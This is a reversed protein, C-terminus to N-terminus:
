KGFNAIINNFDMLTYPNGFKSILLNFDALDVKGDGNLDGSIIVKQHTIIADQWCGPKYNVVRIHYTTNPLLNTPLPFSSTNFPLADSKTHCGTGEGVGNPCGDKVAALDTGIRVYQPQTNTGPNWTITNGNVALNTPPTTCLKKPPSSSSSIPPLSSIKINVANIENHKSGIIYFNSMDVSANTTANQDMFKPYHMPASEFNSATIIKDVFYWNILNNSQYLNIQWNTENTTEAIGLYLNQNIKTVAFYITDNANDIFIIPTSCGSDKNYFNAINNKDFNSPLASTWIPTFSGDNTHYQCLKTFASPTLNNLPARAVKIGSEAIATKEHYFIYFFGNDNDVYGHPHRVFSHTWLKNSDNPHTHYYGKDPWIIPGLDNQPFNIGYNTSAIFPSHSLTIFSHYANACDVYNGDIMRSACESVLVTPNVTNQYRTGNWIENKNEGHNLSYLHTVGDKTILHNTFTGAYNRFWPPQNPLNDHIQSRQTRQCNNTLDTQQTLPNENTFCNYTWGTPINIVRYGLKVVSFPLEFTAGTPKTINLTYPEGITINAQAKVQYVQNPLFFSNIVILILTYRIKM